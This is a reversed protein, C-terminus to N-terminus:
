SRTESFTSRVAKIGTATQTLYGYTGDDRLERAADLLGGYAAFAFAGGVSVRAVGLEALQSVPPTAALALVNVPTPALSEVVRRIVDAEAIGPAFVADAGAEAYAKLRAITDDLDDVGHLLNEARATIVFHVPGSHAADVAARVRELAEDFPYITDSDRGSYDEISCGALGTEIALRVTEAVGDSDDAFCNEM